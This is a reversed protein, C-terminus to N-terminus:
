VNGAGRSLLCTAAWARAMHRPPLPGEWENEGEGGGGKKPQPTAAKQSTTLRDAAAEFRRGKQVGRVSKPTAFESHLARQGMRPQFTPNLGKLLGECTQHSFRSQNQPQPNQFGHDVDSPVLDRFWFPRSCMHQRLRRGGGPMTPSRGQLTSDTSGGGRNPAENPTSTESM